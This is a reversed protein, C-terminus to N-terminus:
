ECPPRPGPENIVEPDPSVIPANINGRSRAILRFGFPTVGTYGPLNEDHITISTRDIKISTIQRTAAHAESLNVFCFSYQGATEPCLAYTIKAPNNNPLAILGTSPNTVDGAYSWVYDGDQVAITVIVNIENLPDPM